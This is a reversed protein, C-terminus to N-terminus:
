ATVEDDKTRIIGEQQAKVEKLRNIEREYDATLENIQNQTLAAGRKDDKM